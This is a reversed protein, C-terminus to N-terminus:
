PHPLWSPPTEHLNIRHSLLPAICSYLSHVQVSTALECFIQCSNTQFTKCLIDHCSHSPFHRDIILDRPQPFRPLRFVDSVLCTRYISCMRHKRDRPGDDIMLPGQTDEWSPFSPCRNLVSESEGLVGTQHVFSFVGLRPSLDYITPISVTTVFLGFEKWCLIIRYIANPLGLGDRFLL